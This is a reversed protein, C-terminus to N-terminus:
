VGKGTGWVLLGIMLGICLWRGKNDTKPNAAALAFLVVLVWGFANVKGGKFFEGYPGV